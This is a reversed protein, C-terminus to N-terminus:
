IHPPLGQVVLTAPRQGALTNGTRKGVTQGPCCGSNGPNLHRGDRPITGDMRGHIPKGLNLLGRIQEEVFPYGDELILLRDCREYLARIKEVPLPYQGISLVPHPVQQHEFNERLYNYALGCSIIGLSSDPHDTLYNFASQESETEFLYQNSLLQKYQRRANAPLLIFQKLNSPLQIENRAKIEGRVVGSRSHALRTTIRMLVPIRYKESM